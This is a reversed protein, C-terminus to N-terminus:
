TSQDTALTPIYVLPKVTNRSKQKWTVLYKTMLNASNNDTSIKHIKLEGESQLQQVHLYRMGIHKTRKTLGLQQTLCKASSIDTYIQPKLRDDTTFNLEHLFNRVYIVDNVTTGIAAIISSRLTRSRSIITKITKQTKSSTAVTVGAFQLVTGTTSTRTKSCRAWDSDCYAKIYPESHVAASTAKTQSTSNTTDQEM